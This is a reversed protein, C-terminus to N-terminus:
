TCFRKVIDKIVCATDNTLREVVRRYKTVGHQLVLFCVRLRQCSVTKIFDCQRVQPALAPLLVLTLLLRRPRPPRPPRQVTMPLVAEILSLSRWTPFTTSISQFYILSTLTCGVHTLTIIMTSQSVNYFERASIVVTLQRTISPTGWLLCHTRTWMAQGGLVVQM